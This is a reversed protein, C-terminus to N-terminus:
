LLLDALTDLGGSTNEEVSLSVIRKVEHWTDDCLGSYTNIKYLKFQLVTTHSDIM